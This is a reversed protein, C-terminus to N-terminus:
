FDDDAAPSTTFGDEEDFDSGGGSGGSYEVLDIVQMKSWLLSIGIQKNMAMPYPFAFGAVRITSGNGVLTKDTIPRKAADVVQIESQKGAARRGDVDKLVFKFVYNGDDDETYLDRKTWGKGKAGLTEMAENFATDQLAALRGVFAETAPDNPDLIVQTEYRGGADYKRDPEAYKCWLAKGKPTVVNIGSVAFPKNSM